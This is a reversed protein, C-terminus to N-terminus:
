CPSEYIIFLWLLRASILKLMCQQIKTRPQFFQKLYVRRPMRCKQTKRPTKKRRPALREFFIWITQVRLHHRNYIIKGVWRSGGLNPNCSYMPGKPISQIELDTNGWWPSTTQWLGIQGGVIRYFFSCCFIRWNIKNITLIIQFLLTHFVM